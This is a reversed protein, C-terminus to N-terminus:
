ERIKVRACEGLYLFVKLGFDENAKCFVGSLTSFYPPVAL